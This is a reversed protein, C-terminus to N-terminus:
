VSATLLGHVSNSVCTCVWVSGQLQVDELCGFHWPLPVAAVTVSPENEYQHPPRSSPLGASSSSNARRREGTDGQFKLSKRERSRMKRRKAGLAGDKHTHTQTHTQTYMDHTKAEPNLCVCVLHRCKNWFSFLPLTIKFVTSHTFPM